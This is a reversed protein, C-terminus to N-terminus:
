KNHEYKKEYEYFRQGLHWDATQLVKLKKSM